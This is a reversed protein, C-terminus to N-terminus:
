LVGTPHPTRQHASRRQQAPLVHDAAGAAPKVLADLRVHRLAPEASLRVALARVLPLPSSPALAPMRSGPDTAEELAALLGAVGAGDARADDAALWDLLQPITWDPSVPSSFVSVIAARRFM